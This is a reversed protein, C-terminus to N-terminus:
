RGGALSRMREAVQPARRELFFGIAELDTDRVPWEPPIMTLIEVLDDATVSDLAAAVDSVADRHLGSPDATPLEDQLRHPHDVAARVAGLDAPWDPGGPFFYGHDHSYTQYEASQSFLWQSDAGWCWDHLAFLGAHRRTNDDDYRHDLRRQNITDPVDLSGHALGAGVMVGSTLGSLSEPIEVLQVRCTPAGILDGCRGVIQENVPVMPGQRNSILKVWYRENDVGLALLPASGGAGPRQDMFAALKVVDRAARRGEVRGSWSSEDVMVM